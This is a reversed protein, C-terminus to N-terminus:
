PSPPPAEPTTPAPKKADVLAQDVRARLTKGSGPSWGTQTFLVRGQPDILVFAPFSKVQYLYSVVRHEDDWGQPWDMGHASAFDEVKRVDREDNVGVLAFPEAAVRRALEKLEPLAAVCSRREATTWFELLVVKGRLQSLVIRPGRLAGLRFDPAESGLALPIGPLADDQRARISLGARSRGQAAAPATELGLILAGAFLIAFAIRSYGPRRPTQGLM